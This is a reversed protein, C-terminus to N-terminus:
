CGLSLVNSDTRPRLVLQITTPLTPDHIPFMGRALNVQPTNYNTAVLPM